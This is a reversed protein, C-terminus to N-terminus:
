RGRRPHAEASWGPPILTTTDLQTVIAPGTSSTAPAWVTGHSLAAHRRNGVGLKVVSSGYPSAGQGPQLLGASGARAFHGAGGGAGDGATM